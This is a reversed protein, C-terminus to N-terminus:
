ERHHAAGQSNRLELKPDPLASLGWESLSPGIGRVIIANEGGGGAGLIFGAIVIDDGTRVNGRTSINALRSDQNPTLDYIEVLGVGTTDATGRLIATYSGPALDAVIASELDNSPARGTGIIEAEQTDRWNNNTLTQFCPPSGYVQLSPDPLFNLIGFQSLFPGIGRILLHRPGNGTVIFGGIGVDNGTGVLLRTSLNTARTVPIPTPTPTSMPGDLAFTFNASSAYIGVYVSADVDVSLTYNGPPLTGSESLTTTGVREFITGTEGTLTATANSGNLQGTMSYPYPVETLTFSLVILKASANGVCGSASATGDGVVRLGEMPNNILISSNSTSTATGSCDCPVIAPCHNGGSATNCLNAPLFGTQSQPPPRQCGPHGCAAAEADSLRSVLIIDGFLRPTVALLCTAILFVRIRSMANPGNLPTKM